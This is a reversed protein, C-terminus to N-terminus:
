DFPITQLIFDDFDLYMTEVVVDAGGGFVPTISLDNIGGFDGSTLWMYDSVDHVLVDDVWVRGIGDYEGPTNMKIHLNIKHWTGLSNTITTTDTYLDQNLEGNSLQQSTFGINGDSYYNLAFFHNTTDMNGVRFYFVKQIISHWQWNSSLRLYFQVYLETPQSDSPFLYWAVAPADGGVFGKPFTVRYVSSGDPATPDNHLGHGPDHEIFPSSTGEFSATVLTTDSPQNPSPNSNQDPNTSSPPPDTPSGSCGTTLASM